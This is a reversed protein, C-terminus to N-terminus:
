TKSLWFVTIGDGGLEQNDQNYYFANVYPVDLLNKVLSFHAGCELPSRAGEISTLGSFDDSDLILSETHMAETKM